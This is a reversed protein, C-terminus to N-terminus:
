LVLKYGLGRINTIELFPMANKLRTIYVRISGDSVDESRSWLTNIIMDKTVVSDVHLALLKLLDYEKNSLILENDKYIVSRKEDNLSLTKVHLINDSNKGSRKVLANIRALLEDVDCPKKIFDDVGVEFGKLLTDKDNHSTLFIAPTKDDSDRLEELLTLGNILPVNIDLLYVDFQLEYSASLADEGNSFHSVDFNLEELCDCISQAFLADDELFLVKISV